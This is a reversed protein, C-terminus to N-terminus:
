GEENNRQEAELLASLIESQFISVIRSSSAYNSKLLALFNRAAQVMTKASPVEDVGALNKEKIIAKAITILQAAHGLDYSTIASKKRIVQGARYSSIHLCDDYEYEIIVSQNPELATHINATPIYAREDGFNFFAIRM